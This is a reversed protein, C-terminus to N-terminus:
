DPTEFNVEIKGVSSSLFLEKEGGEITKEQLAGSFSEGDVVISGIAGSLTMSYEEKAGQLALSAAGVSVSLSAMNSVTGSATLSGMGVQADLGVASFDTLHMKGMGVSVQLLNARIGTLTASGAGLEINVDEFTFDKPVYLVIEANGMEDLKRSATTALITLVGDWAFAQLKGASKAEIYFCGDESEATEISAGGVSMSLSHIEGALLTKEVTGTWIEADDRFDVEEAIEYGISTDGAKEIWGSLDTKAKEFRGGLDVEGDVLLKKAGYALLLLILITFLFRILKKM